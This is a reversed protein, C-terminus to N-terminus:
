IIVSHKKESENREFEALQKLRTSVEHTKQILNKIDEFEEPREKLSKNHSTTPLLLVDDIERPPQDKYLM